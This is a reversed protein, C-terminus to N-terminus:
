SAAEVVGLSFNNKVSDDLEDASLPPLSDYTNSGREKILIEHTQQQWPTHKKLECAYLYINILKSRNRIGYVCNFLVDYQILTTSIRDNAQLIQSFSCFFLSIWSSTSASPVLDLEHSQYWCNETGACTSSEPMDLYTWSMHQCAPIVPSVPELWDLSMSNEQHHRCNRPVYILM